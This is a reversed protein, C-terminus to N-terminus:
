NTKFFIRLMVYGMVEDKFLKIFGIQSFLLLGLKGLCVLNMYPQCCLQLEYFGDHFPPLKAKQLKQDRRPSVIFGYFDNNSHKSYENELRFLM